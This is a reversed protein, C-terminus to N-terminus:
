KSPTIIKRHLRAATLTNKNIEFMLSTFNHILTRYMGFTYMYENVSNADRIATYMM